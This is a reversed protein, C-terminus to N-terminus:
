GRSYREWDYIVKNIDAVPAKERNYVEKILEIVKNSIQYKDDLYNLAIVTGLGVSFVIGAVVIISAGTVLFASLFAGIAWSAFAVVATKAM